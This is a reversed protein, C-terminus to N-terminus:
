TGPEVVPDDASLRRTLARLWSPPRAVLLYAASAYAIGGLVDVLYHDATLIISFCALVTYAFALWGIRGFARRLVLFSLFPYGAHLSPFAAVGNPNVDYFTYTYIERGNFGLANALATFADPKLYAIAPRGDPGNILGQQAADWPPAVPLLLFTIFGAMSLVIFAAVYGYYTPRRWLWLVFGTAIPLVFHLMYVITALITWANVGRDPDFLDQFLQTPLHGFAVFREIALVDAVHVPFGANDAVGRMLEYALFLAVFPIWDRLFLVGRGLLLAVLAFAVALVDPTITVGETIMLVVVVLAYAGVGIILLRENRRRGAEHGLM